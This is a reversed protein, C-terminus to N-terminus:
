TRCSSQPSKKIKQSSSISLIQSLANSRKAKNTQKIKAAVANHGRRSTSHTEPTQTHKVAGGSCESDRHESVAPSTQFPKPKLTSGNRSCFVADGRRMSDCAEPNQKRTSWRKRDRVLGALEACGDKKSLTEVVRICPQIPRPM